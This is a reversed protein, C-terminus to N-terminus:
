SSKATKQVETKSEEKDSKKEIGNASGKNAPVSEPTHTVAQSCTFKVELLKRLASTRDACEPVLDLIETATDKFQNELKLLRMKQGESLKMVPTFAHIVEDRTRM